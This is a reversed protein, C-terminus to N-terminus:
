AYVVYILTHNLRKKWSRQTWELIFTKETVFYIGGGFEFLKHAASASVTPLHLSGLQVWTLLFTVLCINILLFMLHVSGKLYIKECWM